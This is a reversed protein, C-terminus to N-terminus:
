SYLSTNKKNKSLVIDKTHNYWLIKKRCEKCKKVQHQKNLMKKNGKKDLIM